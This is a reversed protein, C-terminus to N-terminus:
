TGIVETSAKVNIRELAWRLVGGRGMNLSRPLHIKYQLKLNEWSTVIWPTMIRPPRYNYLIQKMAKLRQLNGDPGNLANSVRNAESSNSCWSRFHHIKTWFNTLERGPHLKEPPKELHMELRFPNVGIACTSSVPSRTLDRPHLHPRTWMSILNNSWNTQVLVLQNRNEM